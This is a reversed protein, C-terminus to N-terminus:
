RVLNVHGMYKHEEGLVDIIVFRYVYTDIQCLTGGGRTGDWGVSPDHSEFIQNGWRDFILMTFDRIGEGYGYFIDNNGNGNPTFTNPVFFTFEALIPVIQESTDACGYQNIVIQQVTYHGTDAYSHTPNQQISGDFDGFDYEWFTAGSSLDAFVVEPQIITVPQPSYTFDSVPKPYVVIPFNMTDIFICGDSTTIVLSPYFSGPDNYTHTPNQTYTFNGDGFDWLWNTVTSGNLTSTETFTVTFDECGSTAAPAFVMAPVPFTQVLQVLTDLCGYQTQVILQVYFSDNYITFEHDPSVATSFGGDSFDWDYSVINGDLSMSANTFKTTDGWCVINTTFAASPQAHVVVPNIITDSCGGATTVILEVNYNGFVAYQHQPNQQTSGTLDGFDWQWQTINGATNDTFVTQQNECATTASFVAVPLANVTIVQTQISVCGTSAWVSLTITYTGVVTYTHSTNQNTDLPSGDGFDWQWGSITANNTTSADIFTLAGNVCVSDSVNMIAQVTNVVTVVNFTQDTCGNGASVILSSLYNGANAYTHQVVPGTTSTNADGFDWFWTSPFGTSIDTFTTPSGVCVTDYTFAAVPPAGVTVTGTITSDCGSTNTVVLTITYTGPNQYIYNPNQQFSNNGDGFDWYYSGIPTPDTTLDTFATINGLCVATATFAPFPVTGVTVNQQLTDACGAVNGVILTIQYTGGLLYNHPPNQTNDIPSGDGFDWSWQSPTGSSTDTFMIAQNACVTSSAFGAQPQPLVTVVQSLTDTCGFVNFAVLTATYTGAALYTYSPSQTNVLPSGDGFNWEWGIASVSNDTFNTPYTFCATTSAYAAVPLPNVVITHQITDACGPVNNVILTVTYTGQAIYVHNPNAALNLPSADGFDWTWAVASTSIDTFSSAYGECVTDATFDAVPLPYVTVTTTISDICGFGNQTVLTVPYSGPAAYTHSPNQTANLPSGDGFDWQWQTPTNTTADTFNTPLGLCPVNSAFSPVTRPNAQVAITTSHTCGTGYGATLIVNYTGSLPYVHSPTPNNSVDLPSGDGFDWTYTTPGGLSTSTFDTTDTACVSVFTFQATPIPNVTVIGTITDGCGSGAAVILTTTYTGAVAYVHTPNQANGFPSADGYDWSWSIPAGSTQDTFTTSQGVCVTTTAFQAVPVLNVTVSQTVFDSCGAANTATLTVNYTGSSAYLHNPTQSSASTADGFNWLWTVVNGTTNNTFITSDGVCEVSAAFATNPISDVVVVATITDDCGFATTTVLTVTYTGAATYAHVPNTTASTGADGFNWANITQGISTNTFIINDLACVTDDSMTFGAIPEPHVTVIHTVSDSCGSSNTVLLEITYISDNQNAIYTQSPPNQNGSTNGNGFTWTYSNGPSATTSNTFNVTLPTCGSAPVATFLPVPRPLVVVNVTDRSICGLVNVVLTITQTGPTAFVIPPPTFATSTTPLATPGFNWTYTGGATSGNTFNVTLDECGTDPVPTIVAVPMPNVVVTGVVTDAGCFGNVILTVPFTGATNYTQTHPGATVATNGNGFDWQWTLQDGLSAQTFTVSGGQCITTNMPTFAAVVAPHVTINVLSDRTGCHNSVVLRITHNVPNNGAPATFTVPAINVASSVFVGDVYWAYSLAGGTSTNTATVLLPTCGNTPTVLLNVDPITDIVIVRTMTDTGCASGAILSVTYTGVYYTQPPPNGTGTIINGNGFDWTYNNAPSVGTSLNTFTVLQPSCGPNPTANFNVIPAGVVIIPSVTSQSSNCSNSATLTITYTGAVTYVHTPPIPSTTTIPPTNDGFNWVYTTANQSAQVPTVTLPLCGSMQMIPVSFSAGVYREFIVVLTATATCGNPGTATMTVTFTGYTNYTHTFNANSATTYNPTADGFSWTYSTAGTTFNSFTVIESTTPDGPLLCNITNGDGDNGAISVLPIALATVAMTFTSTCGVFNTVVLTVTYTGGAAYTHTPNQQTSTGADGFNWNYTTSATTGTSTNTFTVPLGACQNNPNFTFSAVPLPHIRVTVIGTDTCPGSPDTAVVM